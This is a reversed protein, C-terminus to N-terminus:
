RGNDNTGAKRALAAKLKKRTCDMCAVVSPDSIWVYDNAFEAVKERGCLACKM